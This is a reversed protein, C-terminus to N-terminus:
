QTSCEGLYWLFCAFAFSKVNPLWVIGCFNWHICFLYNNSFLWNSRFFLGELFPCSLEKFNQIQKVSEVISKRRRMRRYTFLLFSGYQKKENWTIKVVYSPKQQQRMLRNFTSNWGSCMYYVWVYGIQSKIHNVNLSFRIFVGFLTHHLSFFEEIKWKAMTRIKSTSIYSSALSITYHSFSSFFLFFSFSILFYRFSLSDVTYNCPVLAFVFMFVRENMQFTFFFLLLSIFRNVTYYIYTLLCRFSKSYLINTCILRSM